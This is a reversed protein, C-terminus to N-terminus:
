LPDTRREHFRCPCTLQLLPTVSRTRQLIALWKMECAFGPEIVAAYGRDHIVLIHTQEHLHM